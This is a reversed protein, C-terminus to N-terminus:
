IDEVEEDSLVEMVASCTKLTYYSTYRATPVGCLDLYNPPVNLSLVEKAYCRIKGCGDM